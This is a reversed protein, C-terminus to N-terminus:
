GIMRFPLEAVLLNPHAFLRSRLEGAKQEHGDPWNPQPLMDDIIYIGGEVLLDLTEELLRYKGPWTDAFILDFKPGVYDVLWQDGDTTLIQVAASDKIVQKVIATLVADNDLSILQAEETMGSIMWSLSLGIGTGLELFRGGPRSRCLARLLQGVADDSSMTFGQQEGLLTLQTLEPPQNNRPM